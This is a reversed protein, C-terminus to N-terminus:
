VATMQNYSGIYYIYNKFIVRLDFLFNVQQPYYHQHTIIYSHDVNFITYVQFFYNLPVSSSLDGYVEMLFVHLDSQDVIIVCFCM